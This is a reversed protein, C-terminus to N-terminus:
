NEPRYNECFRETFRDPGCTRYQLVCCGPVSAYIKDQMADFSTNFFHYFHVVYRPRSNSSSGGSGKAVSAKLKPVVEGSGLVRAQLVHVANSLHPKM